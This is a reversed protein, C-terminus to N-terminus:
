PRRTTPPALPGTSGADQSYPPGQWAVFGGPLTGNFATFSWDGAYTNDHFHNNRDYTIAKQIVEGKYPSWDPSTGFDSFLAQKGCYFPDCGVTTASMRFTNHHVEINQTKWRCDSYYPEAAITGPSCKEFSAAGGKTCYETSTNNPSHCFRNASEWIAVGGWNDELVNGVIESAAFTPSVRKDGGSEAIYITGVPFYDGRAAFQRGLAWTNHKLTNDKILFNYSIEYYIGQGDNDNIYNGEFRFAVNNTDAWLGVSHNHHVWNNTVTGGTVDWFKGGGTCGCGPKKTEWDDTNNESVENHDVTVNRLGGPKFMSFGYESNATLCNHRLVGDSGLFVGAGGNRTVTNYEIVWGAGAGQNVTAEGLPAVFNRITLHRITVGTAANPPVSTFAYRNVGQGDLIAGPAGTYTNGTLPAVQGFATKALTHVGPALWFTTGPPAAATADNLNRGPDVRVAGAPPPAPGDLQSSGCMRAPPELPAGAPPTAAKPDDVINSAALMTVAAVIAAIASGVALRRPGARGEGPAPNTAVSM